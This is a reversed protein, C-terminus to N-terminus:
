SNIPIGELVAQKVVFQDAKADEVLAYTRDLGKGLVHAFVRLTGQDHMATM